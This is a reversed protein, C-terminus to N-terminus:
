VPLRLFGRLFGTVRFVFSSFALRDDVFELFRWGSRGLEHSQDLLEDIPRGFVAL